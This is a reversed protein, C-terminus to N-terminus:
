HGHHGHNCCCDMMDEVEGKRFLDADSMYIVEDSSM